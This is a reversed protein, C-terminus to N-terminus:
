VPLVVLYLFTSHSHCLDEKTSWWRGVWLLHLAKSNCSIVCVCVCVCVCRCETPSVQVLFRWMASVEVQVVRLLRLVCFDMSRAPNSGAIGAPSHCCVWAKSQRAVSVPSMLFFGGLFYFKFRFHRRFVELAIVAQSFSCICYFLSCFFPAHCQLNSKFSEPLSIIVFDKFSPSSCGYDMSTFCVYVV